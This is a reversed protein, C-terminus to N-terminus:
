HPAMASITLQGRSRSLARDNWLISYLASLCTSFRGITDRLSIYSCHHYRPSVKASTIMYAFTSAQQMIRTTSILNLKSHSCCFTEQRTDVPLRSPCRRYDLCHTDHALASTVDSLSSILTINDHKRSQAELRILGFILCWCECNYSM